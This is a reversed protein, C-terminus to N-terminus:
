SRHGPLVISEKDVDLRQPIGVVQMRLQDWLMMVKEAGFRDVINVAETALRRRKEPDALLCEMAASLAHADEAPVLIGDVGNRIIESPGTPCDTSIVPLGCAMAEILALPFGEFRSSMVFMDADRLVLSPDKVLGLFKVREQLKLTEAMAELTEREDGEGLIYLSWQPHCDSCLRFAELLIDFGKQKVLRGMAVITGGRVAVNSPRASGTPMFHVPNPIVRIRDNPVINQAWGTAMAKSVVVLAVALRYVARRLLSWATGIAYQRPDVQECIVVPLAMGVAALLTTVNTTDGFSIIIEPRIDRIQRRLARVREINNRVREFLNRSRASVGLGIRRVTAHLRYFDNGAPALTILTVQEGNGAWYNALVSMARESGGAGFASIVLAIRMHRDYFDAREAIM